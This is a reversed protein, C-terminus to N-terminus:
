FMITILHQRSPQTSLDHDALRGTPLSRTTNLVCHCLVFAFPRFFLLPCYLIRASCPRSISRHWSLTQLRQEGRGRLSTRFLSCRLSLLVLQHYTLDWNQKKASPIQIQPLSRTSTLQRSYTFTFDSRHFSTSPLCPRKTIAVLFAPGSSRRKPAHLTTSHAAIYCDLRKNCSV